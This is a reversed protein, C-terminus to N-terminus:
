PSLRWLMHYNEDAKFITVSRIMKGVGVIDPHQGVLFAVGSGHPTGLLAQFRETGAQFQHGPWAKQLKGEPTALDIIAKTAPTRVNHRWIMNLKSAAGEGGQGGHM